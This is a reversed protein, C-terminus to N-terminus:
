AELVPTIHAIHELLMKVSPSRDELYHKAKLVEELSFVIESNPNLPTLKQHLNAEISDLLMKAGIKNKEEAIPEIHELREKQSMSLFEKGDKLFDKKEITSTPIFIIRSRLTPILREFSDLILFFHTDATPEEFVKLLANQAEVTIGGIALIFIKKGGSFSKRIQRDSLARADDVGFIEFEQLWYDPNGQINIKLESEIFKNLASAVVTRDGEFAYSHHLNNPKLHQSFNM